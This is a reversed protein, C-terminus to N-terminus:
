AVGFTLFHVGAGRQGQTAPGEVGHGVELCPIFLGSTLRGAWCLGLSGGRAGASPAACCLGPAVYLIRLRGSGRPCAGRRVAAGTPVPCLCGGGLRRFGAEGEPLCTLEPITAFSLSLPFVLKIAKRTEVDSGQEMKM